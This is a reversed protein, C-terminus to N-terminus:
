EDSGELAKLMNPDRTMRSAMYIAEKDAYVVGPHNYLVIIDNGDDNLEVCDRFMAEEELAKRNWLILGEASDFVEFGYYGEKNIIENIIDVKPNHIITERENENKFKDLLMPITFNKDIHFGCAKDVLRIRETVAALTDIDRYVKQIQYQLERSLPHCAICYVRKEKGTGFSVHRSLSVAGCISCKLSKEPNCLTHIYDSYGTLNDNLITEIDADAMLKTMDLTFCAGGYINTWDIVYQSENSLYGLKMLELFIEQYMKFDTATKLNNQGNLSEDSREMLFSYFFTNQATSRVEGNKDEEFWVVDEIILRDKKM